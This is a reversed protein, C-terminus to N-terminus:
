DTRAKRATPKKGVGPGFVARWIAGGALAGAVPAAWYLLAHDLPSRKDNYHFFFSTIMAPNLGPGSFGSGALIQTNYTHTPHTLPTHARLQLSASSNLSSNAM